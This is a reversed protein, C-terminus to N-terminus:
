PAAAALPIAVRFCTGEGPKSRMHIEYGHEWALQHAIALGLGQGDSRESKEYHRILRAQDDASMGPGTDAVIIEVGAGRRKAGILVKGTATFKIANKTLNSAIRLLPTTTGTVSLSSPLIRLSLGKAEAERAFVADLTDLILSIAFTEVEDEGGGEAPVDNNRHETEDRPHTEELYNLLLSEAYQLASQLTERQESKQNSALSDVAFRLSALPQRLDHSAEALRARRREALERARNFARETELLAKAQEAERRATEVERELSARYDLNLARARTTFAIMLGTSIILYTFKALDHNVFNIQADGMIMAITLGLMLLGLVGGALYALETQLRVGKAWMIIAYAMSGVALPCVLLAFLTLTATSYFPLLLMPLLSIGAAVLFLKRFMPLLRGGALRSAVLFALVSVSTLIYFSANSNWIPANPWVNAFLLGDIQALLLLAASLVITLSLTERGAIAINLGMFFILTTLALTYFITNRSNAQSALRAITQPTELSLPLFTFGFSGYRLIFTVTEGADVRFLRGAMDKGYFDEARYPTSQHRDLLLQISCDPRIVYLELVRVWPENATPRLFAPQDLKNTITFGAWIMTTSYPRSLHESATFSSLAATRFRQLATKLDLQESPDVFYRYAPGLQRLPTGMFELQATKDFRRAIDCETAQAPSIGTWIPSLVICALLAAWLRRGMGHARLAM